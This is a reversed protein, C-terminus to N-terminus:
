CSGCDLTYKLNASKHISQHMVVFEGKQTHLNENGMSSLLFVLSVQVM